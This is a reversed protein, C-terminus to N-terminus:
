DGELLADGIPRKLNLLPSSYYHYTRSNLLKAIYFEPIEKKQTNILQYGILVTLQPLSHYHCYALM